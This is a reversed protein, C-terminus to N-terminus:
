PETRWQGSGCVYRYDSVCVERGTAWWEVLNVQFVSFVVMWIWIQLELKQEWAEAVRRQTEQEKYVSGKMV